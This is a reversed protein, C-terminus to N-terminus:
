KSIKQFNYLFSFKGKYLKVERYFIEHTNKVLDSRFDRNVIIDGRASLIFLQSLM